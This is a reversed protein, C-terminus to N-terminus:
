QKNLRARACTELSVVQTVECDAADDSVFDCVIGVNLPAGPPSFLVARRKAFNYSGQCNFSKTVEPNEFTAVANIWVRSQFYNVRRNGTIILRLTQDKFTKCSSWFVDGVWSSGAPARVETVPM